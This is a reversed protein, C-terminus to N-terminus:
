PSAVNEVIYIYKKRKMSYLGKYSKKIGEKNQGRHIVFVKEYM